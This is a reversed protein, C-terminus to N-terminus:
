ENTKLIRDEDFSKDLFTVFDDVKNLGDILVCDLSEWFEISLLELVDGLFTDVNIDVLVEELSHLLLVLWEKVPELGLSEEVLDFLYIVNFNENIFIIKLSNDRVRELRGWSSEDSRGVAPGSVHLSDHLGLSVLGTVVSGGFEVSVLLFDKSDVRSM